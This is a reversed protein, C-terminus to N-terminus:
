CWRCTKGCRPSLIQETGVAAIDEIAIEMGRRQDTETDGHDRHVRRRDGDQMRARQKQRPRCHGTSITASAFTGSEVRPMAIGLRPCVVSAFIQPRIPDLNIGVTGPAGTVARRNRQEAAPLPVDWLELPINGDQGIEAAAQLNAGRRRIGAPRGGRWCSTATLSARSRLELRERMEADPELNRTEPEGEAVLAARYEIELNQATKTLDALEARQEDTLDDKGLLDNIKQRTESQKISIRQAPTM